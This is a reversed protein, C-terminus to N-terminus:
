SVFGSDSMRRRAPLTIPIIKPAIGPRLPVMATISKMGRVNPMSVPGAITKRRDSHIPPQEPPKMPDTSRPMGPEGDDTAVQKSPWGIALFPCAPLARAIPITADQMPVAPLAMAPANRACVTASIANAIPGHSYKPSQKTAMVITRAIDLPLMSFPRVLAHMPRRKADTPKEGISACARKVNSLMYRM